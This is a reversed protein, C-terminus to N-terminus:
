ERPVVFWHQNEQLKEEARKLLAKADILYCTADGIKGTIVENRLPDLIEKVRRYTTEWGKFDHGYMYKEEGNVVYRIKEKTLVYDTGFREEVGHMFTCCDLVEGIFLLRGGIEPLKMFPSNKGVPTVNEYTLAPLLLTGGDGLAEQLTDLVTEPTEETGLAKMSSHVLITEGEKIGLAKMDALLKKADNM